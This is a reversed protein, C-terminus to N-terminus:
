GCSECKHTPVSVKGKGHGKVAWENACRGCLHKAVITTPAGGAALARAGGGKIETDPVTVLRDKCNACSVPKDDSVIAAPTAKTGSLQLLRAAGKEQANAVTASVTLLAVAAVLGVIRGTTTLKTKM